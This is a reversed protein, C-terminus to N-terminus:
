NSFLDAFRHNIVRKTDAIVEPLPQNADIIRIRQPHQHYLRLYAAHVRHHFNMTEEDLRNIQDTRHSEIRSIGVEPPLDFYITLQPMTGNTAFTNIDWVEKEGLQRGAGQYAVSSDVYRDCLITKDAALAPEITSVVHHRRDAAFLLAETRGDMGKNADDFLIQRLKAYFHDGGPERTVVLQDGLVPQLEAVLADIVSTKGAGDPGEFSIFKGAM